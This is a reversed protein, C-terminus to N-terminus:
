RWWASRARRPPRRGGGRAPRREAAVAEAPRQGEGLLDEDVVQAVGLALLELPAAAVGVEVGVADGHLVGGRLHRQQLEHGGAQGLHGHRGGHVAVVQDLGLDAGVDVEVNAARCWCRPRRSGACPTPWTRCRSRSAPCRADDVLDHELVVREGAPHHDAGVAVRGVGAPEAHDGDADAAGVRDVHHGAEREVHAPRLEDAHVEGAREDPQDRGFSTMRLTASIRVTFPPVPAMTSYKPGPASVM